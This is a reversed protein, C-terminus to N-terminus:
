AVVAEMWKKGHSTVNIIYQCQLVFGLLCITHETVSTTASCTENYLKVEWGTLQFVFSSTNSVTVLILGLLKMAHSARFQFEYVEAKIFYTWKAQRSCCCQQWTVVVGCDCRCHPKWITKSRWGEPRHKHL